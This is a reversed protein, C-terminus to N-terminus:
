GLGICETCINVAKVLVDQAGGNFIGLIIFVVAVVFIVGRVVWLTIDNNAISKATTLAHIERQPEANGNGFKIMTKLERVQKTALIGNTVSAAILGAFMVAIWPLVRRMMKFVEESIEGAFNAANLLYCLSAITSALTLGLAACWVCMRAAKLKRYKAEASEYESGAGDSPTKASLLKLTDESKRSATVKQLPFIAGCIIGGILVILPIALVKLREAAIERTYIVGTGKGSYYIDAAVCIFAIGMAVAFASIIITYIHRLKDAKEM